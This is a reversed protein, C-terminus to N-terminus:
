RSRYFFIVANRKRLIDIIDPKVINCVRKDGCINGYRVQNVVRAKFVQAVGIHQKLFFEAGSRANHALGAAILDPRNPSFKYNSIFIM